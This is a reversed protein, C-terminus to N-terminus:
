WVEISQRVAVPQEVVVLPSAPSRRIAHSGFVDRDRGLDVIEVLDSCMDVPSRSRQQPVRPAGNEGQLVRQTMRFVHRM